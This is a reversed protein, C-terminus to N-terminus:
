TLIKDIEVKFECFFCNKTIYTSIKFQISRPLNLTNVTNIIKMLENTFGIKIYSHLGSSFGNKRM